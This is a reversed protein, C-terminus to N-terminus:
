ATLTFILTTFHLTATYNLTTLFNLCITGTLHVQSYIKINKSRLCEGKYNVVM